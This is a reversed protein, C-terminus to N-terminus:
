LAVTVGKIFGEKFMLLLTAGFTWELIWFVQRFIELVFNPLFKETKETIKFIESFKPNTMHFNMFEWIKGM